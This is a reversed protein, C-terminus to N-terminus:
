FGVCQFAIVDTAGAGAPIIFSATTTTSSAEGGILVTPATRDHAQCSWGTPATAATAGNMTIVATCTNAGLTFTGASGGGSTASISCGSTTFKTGLSMYTSAQHQGATTTVSTGPTLMGTITLVNAASDCVNFTDNVGSSAAGNCNLGLVINRSGSTLNNGVAWGFLANEQGGLLGTGSTQGYVSNDNGTTLASGSNAGTITNNIGSFNAAGASAQGTITNNNGSVNAGSGEGTITNGSAAGTINRGADTGNCTNNSGTAPSGIGAGVGCANHGFGSNANAAGSFNGGAKSGVFSSEAGAYTTSLTDDNIFLNGNKNGGGTTLQTVPLTPDVPTFQVSVTLGTGSGSTTAQSCTVTDPNATSSVSRPMSVMVGTVITSGVATVAINPAVSFNAGPCSLTVMDSAAYNTGGSVVAISNPAVFFGLTTLNGGGNAVLPAGSNLTLSGPSSVTVPGSFAGGASPFSIGITQLALVWQHPLPDLASGFWTLTAQQGAPVSVAANVASGIIQDNAPPYLLLTNAPDKNVVTVSTPVSPPRAGSGSPVSNFVNVAAPLQLATGQNTGTALLRLQGPPPPQYNNQALVPTALLLLCLILFRVM